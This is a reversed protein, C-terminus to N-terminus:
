VRGALYNGVKSCLTSVPYSNLSPHLKPKKDASFVLNKKITKWGSFYDCFFERARRFSFDLRTRSWNSTCKYAKKISMTGFNNGVAM